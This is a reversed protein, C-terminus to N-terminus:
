LLFELDDEENAADRSVYAIQLALQKKLDEQNLNESAKSMKKIEDIEKNEQFIGASLIQELADKLTSQSRSILLTEEEQRNVKAEYKEKIWRIFHSKGSGAKGEVVIFNHQDRQNIIKEQFFKEESLHIHDQEEIGSTVYKLKEFPVHTALFDARDATNANVKIVESVRKELFEKDM